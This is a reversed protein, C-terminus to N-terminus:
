WTVIEKGGFDGGRRLPRFNSPACEERGRLVERNAGFVAVLTEIRERKHPSKRPARGYAERQM